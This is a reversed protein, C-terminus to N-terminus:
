PKKSDIKWVKSSIDLSTKTSSDIGCGMVPIEGERKDFPGRRDKVMGGQEM